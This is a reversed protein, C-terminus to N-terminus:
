LLKIYGRWLGQSTFVGTPDIAAQIEKLRQVNDEGYGAFIQDAQGAMAYNMYLYPHTVGLEEAASKLRNLTNTTM